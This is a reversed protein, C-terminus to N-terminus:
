MTDAQLSEYKPHMMLWHMLPVRMQNRRSSTLTLRNLHGDLEFHSQVLDVQAALAYVLHAGEDEADDAQVEVESGVLLELLDCEFYEFNLVLLSVFGLGVVLPPETFPVPTVTVFSGLEVWDM